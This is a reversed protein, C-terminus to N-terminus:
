IEHEVIVSDRLKFVHLYFMFSILAFNLQSATGKEYKEMIRQRGIV